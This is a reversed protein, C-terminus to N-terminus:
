MSVSELESLPDSEYSSDSSSKLSSSFFAGCEFGFPFADSSWTLEEDARFCGLFSSPLAESDFSGSIERCVAGPDVLFLFFLTISSLSSSSSDSFSSAMFTSDEVLLVLVVLSFSLLPADGAFFLAFDEGCFFAARAWFGLGGGGATARSNCFGLVGTALAGLAAAARDDEEEDLPASPSTSKLLPPSMTVSFCALICIREYRRWWFRGYLAM